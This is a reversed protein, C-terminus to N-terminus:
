TSVAMYLYQYWIIIIYPGKILYRVSSEYCKYKNNYTQIVLQNITESDLNYINQTSSGFM